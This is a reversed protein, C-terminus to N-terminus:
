VSSIATLVILWIKREKGNNAPRVLSAGSERTPMSSARASIRSRLDKAVSKRPLRGSRRSIPAASSSQMPIPCMSPLEMRSTLSSRIRIGARYGVGNIELEKKYGETVGVVMNNLLSRTLGHLAKHEKDDSPRKVHAFGGDIEIAMEPHLRQTLTGKPGKVTVVNGDAVDVTVGAPIAIQMRGIRSM